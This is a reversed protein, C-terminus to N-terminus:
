PALQSARPPELGAFPPPALHGARSVHGVAPGDWRSRRPKAPRPPPCLDQGMLWGTHWSEALPSGIPYPNDRAPQGNAGALMGQSWADAITNAM